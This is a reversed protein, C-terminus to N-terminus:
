HTKSGQGTGVDYIVKALDGAADQNYFKHIGEALYAQAEKNKLIGDIESALRLGTLNAQPMMRIAGARALLRANESQHDQASSPLPIIISPKRWAALNILANAGARSIVIDALAYALGMETKLFSYPRYSKKEAPKLRSALFRAREIDGEGTQHILNYNRALLELSDFIVKNIPQAGQSGGTIFINPKEETIKFYLKASKKDGVLSSRPIPSGTYVLNKHPLQRYFELPFGVAIKDAFKALFQNTMGFSLDSEHIVLPLKLRRAAIGVPLGVFGGKVFVVDPDFKRLIKHAKLIGANFRFFDKTNKWNTKVDLAAQIISRNYRRFKGAPIQVYQLGVGELIKKEISGGSGIFLIEISKNYSKLEELMALIPAIHGATGGGSVAVRM